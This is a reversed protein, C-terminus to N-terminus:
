NETGTRKLSLIEADKPVENIVRSVNEMANRKAEADATAYINLTMAANSHGMISSVSKVDTGSAIATTAFTHRLDHFVPAKGETGILGLSSSITRWYSWLAHPHLYAGDISGFVYLEPNMPIGAEMCQEAMDIRRRKLLATMQEDLPIDRRSSTTKPDKVYTKSGDSGIVTRVHLTRAKLDVNRWQLGCVESERMGTVLALRIALNNPTEAAIDLYSILRGIAEKTLANPEKRQVKPAKVAAIPSYPIARKNVADKYAAKLLNLIKKVTSPHLGDKLLGNIWAQVMDPDIDGVLTDEFQAAIHKLQKRYDYVTSAAISQSYELTDIYQGVFESVTRAKTYGKLDFQAQSEMEERWAELEKEAERRGKAELTKSIKQWEGNKDKFNLQGRWGSKKKTKYKRIQASAYYRDQTAM